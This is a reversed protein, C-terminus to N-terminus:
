RRRLILTLPAALLLLATLGGTGLDCGGGGGSSPPTPDDPGVPVDPDVPESTMPGTFAKVCVNTNALNATMDTWSSGQSSIYSEGALATAKQSYGDIPQEIPIPYPYGPTTLRVVVSFREGRVLPLEPLDVTHYGATSLTSETMASLTGSRPSGATTGTYVEIRYSAGAQGAYFSVAKLAETEDDLGSATFVNAFWATESSYGYGGIWGLPDYQYVRSYNTKDAGVFVAPYGLTVDAYSLWFYGENGFATGWSNKVLWAGNQGPNVAFREAPFSDDWGVLTVIHGGRPTGEPAYYAANEVSFFSNRWEMRFAVAGYTMVARKISPADFDNGIKLLHVQELHKSVADSAQPTSEPPWPTVNQYPRAAEDVAGTWRALLATAQSVDGGQDFIPDDGYEVARQTFAPLSASEDVYAFYALHWESFDFTGQGAKKFTSELSALAAFAWCTGYPNQDRVATVAGLERLDYRSPLAAATELFDPEPARVHSLDLPSPRYGLPRGEAAATKLAPDAAEERYKLFEPNIPALRLTGAFAVSAVLLLFLATLLPRALASRFRRM